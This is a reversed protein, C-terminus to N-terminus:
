DGKPKTVKWLHELGAILLGIIVLEGVLLLVSMVFDGIGLGWFESTSALVIQQIRIISVVIGTWLVTAILVILFRVKHNQSLARIEDNKRKM